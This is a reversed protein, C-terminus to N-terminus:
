LSSNTADCGLLTEKPKGRNKEGFGLPFVDDEPWLGIKRQESVHLMIIRAISGHDLNPLQEIFTSADKIKGPVKLTSKCTVM